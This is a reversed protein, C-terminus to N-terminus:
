PFASDACREKFVCGGSDIDGEEFCVAGESGAAPLVLDGSRELGYEPLSQRRHNRTRLAWIVVAVRDLCHSLVISLRRAWNKMFLIGIGAIFGVLGLCCAAPPLVEALYRAHEANLRGESRWQSVSIRMYTPTFLAVLM